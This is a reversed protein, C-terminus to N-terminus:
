VRIQNRFSWLTWTGPWIAWPEEPYLQKVAQKIARYQRRNDSM